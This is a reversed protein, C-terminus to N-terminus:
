LKIGEGESLPSIGLSRKEKGGFSSLVGEEFMRLSIVREGPLTGSGPHYIV